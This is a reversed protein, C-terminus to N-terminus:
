QVVELPRTILSENVSFGVCKKKDKQKYQTISNSLANYEGNDCYEKHLKDKNVTDKPKKKEQEPPDFLRIDYKEYNDSPKYKIIIKPPVTKYTKVKSYYAGDEWEIKMNMGFEFPSVIDQTEGDYTIQEYEFSVIKGVCNYCELYQNIPVKEVESLNNQFIYSEITTINEKWLSTRTIIIMTDNHTEEVLRSKANMKSSGDWLRMYEIASVEWSDNVFVSFKTNTKEVDIKVQGPLMIYVSTSLIVLFLAGLIYKTKASKNLKGFM